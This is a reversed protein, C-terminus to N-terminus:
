SPQTPGEAEAAHEDVHHGGINLYSTPDWWSPINGNKWRAFSSKEGRYYNRYSQVPDGVVKYKEPMVAVFPTTDTVVISSGEFSPPVVRTLWRHVDHVKHERGYRNEYERCLEMGHQSLWMYNGWSHAAWQTCPHSAHTMKWAPQLGTPVNEQLWAQLQGRKFGNTDPELMRKWGLWHATCLMQASELVMKVVHKDCHDRAALIANKNLVFINM